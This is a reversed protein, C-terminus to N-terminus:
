RPPKPRLNQNELCPQAHEGQGLLEVVDPQGALACADAFAVEVLDLGRVLLVAGVPQSRLRAAPRAHRILDRSLEFSADQLHGLLEGRVAVDAEAM